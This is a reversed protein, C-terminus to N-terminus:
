RPYDARINSMTLYFAEANGARKALLLFFQKRKYQFYKKLLLFVVDFGPRSRAITRASLWAVMEILKNNIYYCWFSFSERQAKNLLM